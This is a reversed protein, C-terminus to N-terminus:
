EDVPFAGLWEELARGEHELQYEVQKIAHTEAVDYSPWTEDCCDWYVDGQNRTTRCRECCNWWLGIWKNRWRKPPAEVIVPEPATWNVPAIVIEDDM